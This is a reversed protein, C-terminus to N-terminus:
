AAAMGIDLVGVTLAYVEIMPTPCSPTLDDFRLTPQFGVGFAM